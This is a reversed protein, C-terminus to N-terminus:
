DLIVLTYVTGTPVTYTVAAGAANVDIKDISPANSVIYRRQGNNHRAEIVPDIGNIGSVTIQCDAVSGPPNAAARNVIRGEVRHNGSHLKYTHNNGMAVPFTGAPAPAGNLEPPGSVGRADICAIRLQSFPGKAFDKAQDLLEDLKGNAANGKLQKIRTSGGDDIIVADAM